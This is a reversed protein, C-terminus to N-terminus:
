SICFGSYKDFPFKGVDCMVNEAEIYVKHMQIKDPNNNIYTKISHFKNVAKSLPKGNRKNYATWCFPCKFYQDGDKQLEIILNVHVYEM